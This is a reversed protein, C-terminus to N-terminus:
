GINDTCFLSLLCSLLRVVNEDEEGGGGGSGGQEDRGVDDSVNM